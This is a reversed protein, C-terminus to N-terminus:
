EYHYTIFIIFLYHQRHNLALILFKLVLPGMHGELCRYRARLVRWVLWVEEGANSWGRRM